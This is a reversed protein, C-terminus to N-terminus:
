QFLSKCLDASTCQSKSEDQCKFYSVTKLRAEINMVWSRRFSFWSSTRCRPRSRVAGKVWQRSSIPKWCCSECIHKHLYHLLCCGPHTAEMVLLKRAKVSSVDRDWRPILVFSGVFWDIVCLPLTCPQALPCCPWEVDSGLWLKGTWVM